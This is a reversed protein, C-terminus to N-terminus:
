VFYIYLQQFTTSVSISFPIFEDTILIDLINSQKRLVRLFISNTYITDLIIPDIQRLAIECTLSIYFGNFVMSVIIGNNQKM